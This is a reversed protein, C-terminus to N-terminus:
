FVSLNLVANVCSGSLYSVPSFNTRNVCFKYIRSKEVQTNVRFSTQNSPRSNTQNRQELTFAFHIKNRVWIRRTFLTKSHHHIEKLEGPTAHVLQLQLQVTHSKRHSYILGSPNTSAQLNKWVVFTCYHTVFVRMCKLMQVHNSIHIFNIIYNRTFLNAHYKWEAKFMRTKM